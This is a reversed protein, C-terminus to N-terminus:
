SFDRLILLLGDGNRHRGRVQEGKQLRDVVLAVDDRDAVLRRGVAVAVLHGHVVRDHVQGQLRSGDASADLGERFLRAGAALKVCHSRLVRARGLLSGAQNYM